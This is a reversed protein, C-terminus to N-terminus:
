WWFVKLIPTIENLYQNALKRVKNEHGPVKFFSAALYGQSDIGTKGKRYYIEITSSDEEEDIFVEM